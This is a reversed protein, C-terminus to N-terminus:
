RQDEDQKGTGPSGSPLPDPPAFVKRYIITMLFLFTREPLLRRMWALLKADRGVVLRLPMKPSEALRFVRESVVSPDPARKRSAMKDRRSRYGDSAARYPSDTFSREGWDVSRGFQTRFGGPEVLAVQVDHPKLEYYLSESLGELAYKSACYASSLPMSLLGCISSINIIRGRAKRVSPLLAQTLMALGFFNVEMQRRLQREGIAELPGFLGYGANNILLDLRGQFDDQIMSVVGEREGESTVDLSAITFTDPFKTREEAFTELRDQANRMTALVSWGGALFRRALFGGFGSSTGTILVTKSM